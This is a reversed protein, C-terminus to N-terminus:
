IQHLTRNMHSMPSSMSNNIEAQTFGSPRNSCIRSVNTSVCRLATQLGYDDTFFNICNKQKIGIEEGLSITDINTGMFMFEWKWINQHEEVLKKLNDYGKLGNYPEDDNDNNTLKNVTQEGDSLLIFIVKGPRDEENMNNFRSGVIRIMRAFSPVLATMGNPLLDDVNINVDEGNIGDAFLKFKDSFTAGYFIVKTLSLQDKIIQNISQSYETMDFKFMSGSNDFLGIIATKDSNVM